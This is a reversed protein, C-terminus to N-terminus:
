LPQFFLQCKGPMARLPCGAKEGEVVQKCPGCSSEWPVEYWDSAKASVFGAKQVYHVVAPNSAYTVLFARWGKEKVIKLRDEFMKVGLKKGRYDERVWATGLEVWGEVTPWIAGFAVINGGEDKELVALGQEYQAQLKAASIRTALLKEEQALEASLRQWANMNLEEQQGVDGSIVPLFKRKEM